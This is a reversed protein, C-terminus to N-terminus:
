FLLPPALNKDCVGGCGPMGHGSQPAINHTFQNKMLIASVRCDPIDDLKTGINREVWIEARRLDREANNCAGMM